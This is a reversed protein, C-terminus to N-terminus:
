RRSVRVVGEKAGSGAGGLHDLSFDWGAADFAERIRRASGAQASFSEAASSPRLAVVRGHQATPFCDDHDAIQWRLVFQGSGLRSVPAVHRSAALYIECGDPVSRLVFGMLATFAADIDPAREIMFRDDLERHLRLGRRELEAQSPALLASLWSSV